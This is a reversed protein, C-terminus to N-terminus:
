PACYINIACDCDVTSCRSSSLMVISGNLAIRAYGHTEVVDFVLTHVHVYTCYTHVYMDVYMRIYTHVYTCVCMHIYTHVTCQLYEVIFVEKSACVHARVTCCLLLFVSKCAGATGMEGKM